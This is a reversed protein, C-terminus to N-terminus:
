FVSWHRGEAVDEVTSNTFGVDREVFLEVVITDAAEGATVAAWNGFALGAHAFDAVVAATREIDRVSVGRSHLAIGNFLLGEEM